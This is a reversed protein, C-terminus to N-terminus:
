MEPLEMDADAWGGHHDRPENEASFYESHNMIMGM